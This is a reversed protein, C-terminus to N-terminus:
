PTWYLSLRETRLDELLNKSLEFEVAKRDSGKAFWRFATVEVRNREAVNDSRFSVEVNKKDGNLVYYYKGDLDLPDTTSRANSELNAFSIPFGGLDVAGEGQVEVAERDDFYIDGGIARVSFEIDGSARDNSEKSIEVREISSSVFSIEPFVVYLHQEYGLIDRDIGVSKDNVNYGVEKNDDKEVVARLYFGQDEVDTDLVEVSLVLTKVEDKKINLGINRFATKGTSPDVRAIDLSEGKYYLIADQVIDGLSLSTNGEEVVVTLTELDIGAEKATVSLRLLEVEKISRDSIEVVREGPNDKDRRVELVGVKSGIFTFTRKASTNGAYQLIGAEDVGRIATSSAPGVELRKTEDISKGKVKFVVDEYDGKPIHIDINSFRIYRDNRAPNSTSLRIEQLKEDGVYLYVSDIYRRFETATVSYEGDHNFYLDFRRVNIDSDDAKLRFVAVDTIQNAAVEANRVDSRVEVSLDGEPGSPDKEDEENSSIADLRAKIREIEEKIKELMETIAPTTVNSEKEILLLSNLKARTQAGVFGTPSNLGVPSLVDSAYKSQFKMVASRTLQGFYETENGPSGPGSQAVRTNPDSNLLIQLYKVSTGSAGIGFNHNFTFGSPIGAIPTGTVSVEKEEFRGQISEIMAEIDEIRNRIDNEEGQVQTAGLAVFCLFLALVTFILKKM